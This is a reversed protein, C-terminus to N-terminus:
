KDPAGLTVGKKMPTRTEWDKSKQTTSQRGNNTKKGNEKAM